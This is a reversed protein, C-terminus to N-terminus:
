SEWPEFFGCTSRRGMKTYCSGRWQRGRRARSHAKADSFPYSARSVPTMGMNVRPLMQTHKLLLCSSLVLHVTMLLDKRGEVEQRRQCGQAHKLRLIWRRLFHILIRVGLLFKLVTNRFVQFQALLDLRPQRLQLRG